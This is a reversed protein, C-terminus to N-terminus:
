PQRSGCELMAQHGEDTVSGYVCLWNMCHTAVSVQMVGVSPVELDLAGAQM